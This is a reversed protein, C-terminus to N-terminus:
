GKSKGSRPDRIMRIDRIKGVGAKTFFQYIEREDALYHIRTVLVTNDDRKAEEQQRKAEELSKM